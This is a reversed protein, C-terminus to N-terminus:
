RCRPRHELHQLLHRLLVRLGLRVQCRDCGLSSTGPVEDKPQTRTASRSSWPWDEPRKCLEARVPNEIIYQRATALYVEDTVAKWQPRTEFLRGERGYKENYPPVFNRHLRQLGAGLNPESIQVLLHIHNPMLCFELITWGFEDAVKELLEIYRRADEEDIFLRWRDVRRIWLHFIAGAFEIRQM